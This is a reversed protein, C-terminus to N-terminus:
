SAAGEVRALIKNRLRTMQANYWGPARACVRLGAVARLAARAEAQAEPGSEGRALAAVALNWQSPDRKDLLSARPVGHAEAWREAHPMLAANVMGRAVELIHAYLEPGASRLAAVVAHRAFPLRPLAFDAPIEAALDHGSAAWAEVQGPDAELIASILRQAALNAIARQTGSLM